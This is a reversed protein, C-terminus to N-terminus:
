ELNIKKKLMYTCIFYGLVSVAVLLLLSTVSITLIMVWESQSFASLIAVVFTAAFTIFSMAFNVVMYFLISGLIKHKSFFISGLTIATYYLILNAIPTLFVLLVVLIATVIAPAPILGFDLAPAGGSLEWLDSPVTSGIMAVFLLGFSIVTALMSLLSFLSGSLVKSMFQTEVSVPFMFTLYGEDSFFKKYYHILIFISAVAAAVSLATFLLYIILTPFIRLLVLNEPILLNIIMCLIGVVGAGLIGLIFPVQSRRLTKIDYIFLKKLM